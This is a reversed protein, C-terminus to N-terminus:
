VRPENDFLETYLESFTQPDTFSFRAGKESFIMWYGPPIKDSRELGNSLIIKRPPLTCRKAKVFEGNSSQYMTWDDTENFELYFDM